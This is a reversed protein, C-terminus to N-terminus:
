GGSGRLGDRTPVAPLAPVARVARERAPEVPPATPNIALRRLVWRGDIAVCKMRVRDGVSLGAVLARNRVECTVVAGISARVSIPSIAVVVGRVVIERHPRQKVAPDPRGTDAGATPALLLVLATTFVIRKM